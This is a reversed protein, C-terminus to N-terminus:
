KPYSTEMNAIDMLVQRIDLNVPCENVCRGCGVCGIQSLNEPFYAFKHMIRNKLREKQTPRPNFGSAELTFLPFACADWTRLRATKSAIAEDTIDFCHCTPCLYACISCGVCKEYISEWFDADIVQRLKTIVAQSDVFVPMSDQAKNITNKADTRISESLEELFVQYASGFEEGRRSVLKVVYGGNTEILMLDSGTEDFPSGGVSSCFCTQSPQNCGLSVVLTRGRRDTYYPDPFADGQFVQDLLHFSRADCPRVGFLIRPYSNAVPSEIVGMKQDTDSSCFLCETQPFFFEKPPRITNSFNLIVEKAQKIREFRLFDKEMVPAIIEYDQCLQDLFALLRDKPLFYDNV